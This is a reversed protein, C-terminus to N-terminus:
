RLTSLGAEVGAIQTAMMLEAAERDGMDAQLDLVKTELAEVRQMAGDVKGELAGDAVLAANLYVQGDVVIFPKSM